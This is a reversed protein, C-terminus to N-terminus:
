QCGARWWLSVTPYKKVSSIGRSNGLNQMQIVEIEQIVGDPTIQFYTGSCM